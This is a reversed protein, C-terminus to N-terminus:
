SIRKEINYIINIKIFSFKRKIRNIFKGFSTFDISERM